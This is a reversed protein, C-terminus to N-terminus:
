LRRCTLTNPAYSFCLREHATEAPGAYAMAAFILTLVAILQLRPNSLISTMLCTPFFTLRHHNQGAVAAM